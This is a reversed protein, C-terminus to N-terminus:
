TAHGWQRCHLVVMMCAVAVVPSMHEAASSSSERAAEPASTPGLEVDGVAEPTTLELEVVAAVLEIVPLDCPEGSAYVAAWPEEDDVVTEEAAM